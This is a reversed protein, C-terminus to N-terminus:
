FDHCHHHHDFTLDFCISTVIVEAFPAHCVCPAAGDVSLSMTLDDSCPGKCPPRAEFVRRIVVTVILVANEWIAGCLHNERLTM